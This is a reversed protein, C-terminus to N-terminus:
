GGDLNPFDLAFVIQNQWVVVGLKVLTSNLILKTKDSQGGGVWWRGGM